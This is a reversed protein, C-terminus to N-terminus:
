NQGRNNPDWECDADDEFPNKDDPYHELDEDTSRESSVMTVVQEKPKEEKKLRGFLKFGGEDSSSKPKERVEKPSSKGGVADKSDIKTLGESKGKQGGTSSKQEAMQKQEVVPVEAKQSKRKDEPIGRRAPSDEPPQPPTESREDQVNGMGEKFPRFYNTEQGQSTPQTPNRTYEPPQISNTHGISDYGHSAPPYDGTQTQIPHEVYKPKPVGSTQM